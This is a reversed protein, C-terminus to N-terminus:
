QNDEPRESYWYTQNPGEITYSQQNLGALLRVGLSEAIDFLEHSYKPFRPYNIIGIIVGEERGGKYVYCTPTVTVCFGVEDCFSQAIDKATEYDGAIYLSIQCSRANTKRM